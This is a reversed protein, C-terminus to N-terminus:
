IFQLVRKKIYYNEIERHYKNDVIRTIICTQKM